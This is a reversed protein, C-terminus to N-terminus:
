ADMAALVSRAPPQRPPKEDPDSLSQRERDIGIM